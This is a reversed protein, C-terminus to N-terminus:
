QKDVHKMAADTLQEALAELDIGMEKNRELVQQVWEEPLGDIGHYAGLVAGTVAATTDNDRGYSIVFGMAQEFDWDAYLIATLNVLHVEAAHFAHQRAVKDLLDYATVLHFVELEGEDMEEEPEAKRAEHVIQRADEYLKYAIRGILRSEFYGNPDVRWLVELVKQEDADGAMAAAIMAANLSSIDRAYGMDFISMRYTVNYAKAPDDPFVAGIAPSYLLGACALDGGYFRNLAEAYGDMDKQLYAESVRVWEKLWLLKQTSAVYVDLDDENIAKIEKFYQNQSEIIFGAFDQATLDAEESLESVLYEVILKKWRTDDTTTGPAANLTWSGEPSAERITDRMEVIFNFHAQIKERPWMETPAGLADGIASGVLMGITKEYVRDRTLETSTEPSELPETLKNQQIRIEQDQALAPTYGVWISLLGLFGVCLTLLSHRTTRETMLRM